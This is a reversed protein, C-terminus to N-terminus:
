MYKKKLEDIRFDKRARKFDLKHKQADACVRLYNVADMLDSYYSDDKYSPLIADVLKAAIGTNVRHMSETIKYDPDCYKNYLDERSIVKEPCKREATDVLLIATGGLMINKKSM